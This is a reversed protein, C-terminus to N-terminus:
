KGICFTGFIRDLLDDTYVAGVVKGIEDLAARIEVAVLENSRAAEALEAAHRLSGKALRVSEHCRNATTAIIHSSQTAEERMLLTRLKTALGDLGQGTRSSTIVFPLGTSAEPSIQRAMAIDAKTIVVLDCEVPGQYRQPIVEDSHVNIGSEVCLLRLAARKRVTEAVSQAMSDISDSFEDDVGATDVFECEIGNLSITATIYDRTTGRKPSVLAQHGVHSGADCGFRQVMANFLSSKGVNPRGVIAVRIREHAVHRTSMQLMVDDLLNEASQLRQTLDTSSIFEIDEEVFDLGAEIEALLQLLEERLEDLPKALGGALQALACDLDGEGRANIVGLVAEAQTLDLRGALFARLTFEGPEALRAGARCVGNLLAELMPRSGITHLEAIPECTYSRSTPWFFLDCPLSRYSGGVNIRVSGFVATATQIEGIPRRDASQFIRSAVVVAETGSIRIMGRSAGGNATAIACITDDLQLLM